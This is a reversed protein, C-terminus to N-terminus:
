KSEEEKAGKFQSIIQNLKRLFYASTTIDLGSRELQELADLLVKNKKFDWWQDRKKEIRGQQFLKAISFGKKELVDGLDHLQNSSFQDPRLGEREIHQSIKELISNITQAVTKPKEWVESM